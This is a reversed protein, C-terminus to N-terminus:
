QEEKEKRRQGETGPQRECDPFLFSSWIPPVFLVREQLLDMILKIDGATVVSAM